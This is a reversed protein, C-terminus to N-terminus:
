HTIDGPIFPSSQFQLAQSAQSWYNAQLQLAAFIRLGESLTEQARRWLIPAALSNVPGISRELLAFRILAINAVESANLKLEHILYWVGISNINWPEHVQRRLMM